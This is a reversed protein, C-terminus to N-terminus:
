RKLAFHGKVERGDRLSIRFWYDAAPLTLSANRGNWGEGDPSIQTVLAGYRDYITILTNQQFLEDAGSIQWFDNVGDGNPTFFKPYGLVSIDKTTIGCGNQDRVYLTYLGPEVREFSSTSQYSIGDLSFEYIGLGDAIIDVTNNDSFDRIEIETISAKNSAEVYFPILKECVTGTDGSGYSKGVSLIYDGPASIEAFATESLSNISTSNAAFWRYTDFGEPAVLRIPSGDTCVLYEREIDAEPIPSVLLSITEIGVCQGDKELSAYVTGATASHSSGLENEGTAIDEFSEFFRVSTEPYQLSLQQLDFVGSLIDDSSDTDCSYVPGFSSPAVSVPYISLDIEGFSECGLVNTAKYYVVQNLPVSNRYTEPSPIPINNNRDALSEYFTFETDTYSNAAELNIETIGDMTDSVDFDCAELPIIEPPIPLVKVFAQGRVPCEDPNASTVTVVYHGSDEDTVEPLIYENATTPEFAVGDKTWLYTAGPLDIAELGLPDGYCLEIFEDDSDSGQQVLSESQFFSQIFPPLGQNADGILKIAAHEYNAAPGIEDPNHIVGLFPTGVLYSRAITRYIKGNVGLQLAGRYIPQKDLVVMSQPIDEGDLDYQLLSSSHGTTALPDNRNTSHVYLFRNNPSFELGYPYINEDLIPIRQPNSLQGTEADFDYLHLGDFANASALRTGDSSLKLYGRPDTVPFGPFSSKVSLMNVGDQNIEFAHYTNFTDGNGTSSAFALLWISRENCDKIVATVKESCDNLLRINKQVIDGLGDALSMDVISFNLGFDPDGEGISTDVTFIYFIDPDDPKPVILASQTSSPDGYLGAGNPMTRHERNYVRIGDTYFLLNGFTDSISACGELTNLSSQELPTVSGDGNFKLGARNGFLWNSTEGQAFMLVPCLLGMLFISAIKKM